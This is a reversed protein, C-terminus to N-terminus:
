DWEVMGAEQLRSPRCPSPRRDPQAALDFLEQTGHMAAAYLDANHERRKTTRADTAPDM